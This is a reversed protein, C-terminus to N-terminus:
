DAVAGQAIWRRITDRQEAPLQDHGRPMRQGCNNGPCSVDICAHSGDLKDMLFSRAPEGPAVRAKDPTTRAPAVLYTDVILARTTADAPFAPDDPAPSLFLGSAPTAPNGHCGTETCNQAFIPQIDASFSVPPAQGDFSSYDFEPCVAEPPFPDPDSNCSLASFAVALSCKFWGRPRKM